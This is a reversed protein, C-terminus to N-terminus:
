HYDSQCPGQGWSRVSQPHDLQVECHFPFPLSAGSPASPPKVVQPRAPTTVRVSAGPGGKSHEQLFVHAPSNMTGM